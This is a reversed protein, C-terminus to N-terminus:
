RRRRSVSSALRHEQAPHGAAGIDAVVRRRTRDCARVRALYLAPATRFLTAIVAGRDRAAHLLHTMVQRALGAGRYELVVDVGAVGATPVRTGGIWSDYSRDNANAVLTYADFIGWRRIEPGLTTFAANGNTPLGFAHHGILTSSDADRETLLRLDVDRVTGAPAPATM